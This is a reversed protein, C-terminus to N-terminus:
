TDHDVDYEGKAFLEYSHSDVVDQLNHKMGKCAHTAIRSRAARETSRQGQMQPEALGGM